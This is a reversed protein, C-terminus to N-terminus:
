IKGQNRKEHSCILVLSFRIQELALCRTHNCVKFSKALFSFGKGAKRHLLDKISQTLCALLQRYEV